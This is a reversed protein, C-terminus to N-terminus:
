LEDETIGALKMIHRQLGMKLSRNGYVPVSIRVSNGPFVYVHHSGKIRALRWGKKELLLTMEKGSVSKV